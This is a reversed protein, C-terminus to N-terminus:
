LRAALKKRLDAPIKLADMAQEASLKMTEMLIKIFQLTREEAFEEMIECMTHLGGETRKYYHVQEAFERIQMDEPATCRLDHILRVLDNDEGAEPTYAANVYVIHSGDDFRDGDDYYREAVSVPRNKRRTDRETIFIVYNDALEDFRQAKALSRVDLLAHHYRARRPSAGRSDRQVEIDYKRGAADQALIDLTIERDVLNPLAYQAKVELVEIDTRNLIIHLMKETLKPKGNFVTSLFTDDMLRFREIRESLAPDISFTKPKKEAM